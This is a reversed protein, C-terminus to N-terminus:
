KNRLSRYGEYLCTAILGGIVNIVLDRATSSTVLRDVPGLSVPGSIAMVVNLAVVSSLFVVLRHLRAVRSAQFHQQHYPSVSTKFRLCNRLLAQCQGSAIFMTSIIAFGQGKARCLLIPHKGSRDMLLPLFDNTYRTFWGNYLKTKYTTEETKRTAVGTPHWIDPLSAAPDSYVDDPLESLLPHDRLRANVKGQNSWELTEDYVRVAGEGVIADYAQQFPKWKICQAEVILVGGANLFSDIRDAREIFWRQTVDSRHLLVGNLVDWSICLLDYKSLDPQANSGLIEAISVRESEVSLKTLFDDWFCLRANPEPDVIVGIM